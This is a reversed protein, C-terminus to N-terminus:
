PRYTVKGAESVATIWTQGPNLQLTRGNADKFVINSENGTKQWSGETVTGNQFVFVKGTGVTNYVSHIRDSQISYNMVMVVVVDPTIRKKSKEDSHAVGGMSRAYTNSEANYTYSSNYRQSSINVSISTATPTDSPKAEETRAFGTFSSQTYGKSNALKQLADYSTYVNHPTYRYTVRQFAGPHASQDLDKTGWSRINQLAEPSGGVHAIAADFGMLWSVFYPRVSRVPGIAAPETDQYLALFRTIGGEAIAEFVVGAEQLGSQPRADMSNEIIAGIVQRENIAPDVQRGTLTNPLTTPEPEPEPKVIVPAPAPTESPRLLAYAGLSVSIVVLVSLIALMIRQEKKLGKFWAVFAQWPKKKKASTDLQDPNESTNRPTNLGPELDYPKATDTTNDLEIIDEDEPPESRVEEPVSPLEPFDTNEPSNSLDPLFDERKSGNGQPTNPRKQFDDIM